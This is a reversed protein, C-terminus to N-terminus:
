AFQPVPSGFLLPLPSCYACSREPLPLAYQFSEPSADFADIWSNIGTVVVTVVLREVIPPTEMVVGLEPKAPVVPVANENDM